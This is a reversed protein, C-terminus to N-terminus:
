YNQQQQRGRTVKENSFSNRVRKMAGVAIPSVVTGGKKERLVEERAESAAAFM